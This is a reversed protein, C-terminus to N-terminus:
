PLPSGSEATSPCLPPGTIAVPEKMGAAPSLKGLDNPFPYSKLLIIEGWFVAWYTWM